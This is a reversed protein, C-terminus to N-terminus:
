EDSARGEDKPSQVSNAGLYQKASHGSVAGMVGAAHALYSSVEPPVDELKAIGRLYHLVTRREDHTMDIAHIALRDLARKLQLPHRAISAEVEDDFRTRPLPM